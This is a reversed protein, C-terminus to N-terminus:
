HPRTESAERARKGCRSAPRRRAADPVRDLIFGSISSNRVNAYFNDGFSCVLTSNASIVGAIAWAGGEQVLIPGGSDGQCVSSFNSTFATQLTLSSVGTITAVGARLTATIGAADKGWGTLVADEVVGAVTGCTLSLASLRLQ